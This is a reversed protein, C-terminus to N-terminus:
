SRPAKVPELPKGDKTVFFFVKAIGDHPNVGLLGIEMGPLVEDGVGVFLQRNGGYGYIYGDKAKVFVMKGFGRFPAAWTVRGSSVSVIRDGQQGIIAIASSLKGELKQIEGPHPWFPAEPGVGTKSDVPKTKGEAASRADSGYGANTERGASESSAPIVLRENTKIVSKEQLGNAELLEKLSTGYKRALGYLTDGSRVTHYTKPEEATKTDSNRPIKLLTGSRVRKPDEIQNASMLLDLSVNFQKAIGYLTDGKKMRYVTTDCFLGPTPLLLAISLIFFPISPWIKRSM